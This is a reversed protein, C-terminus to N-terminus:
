SRSGASSVEVVFSPTAGEEWTRFVSREPEQPVGFCVWVDPAIKRSPDHPQYYIFQDAAVYVQPHQPYLLQRLAAYLYFILRVAAGTLPVTREEEAPYYLGDLGWCSGRVAHATPATTEM